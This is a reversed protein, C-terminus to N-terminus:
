LLTLAGAAAVVEHPRLERALVVDDLMEAVREDV